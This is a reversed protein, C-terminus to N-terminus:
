EGVDERDARVQGSQRRDADRAAERLVFQRDAELQGSTREVFRRKKADSVGVLAVGRPPLFDRRGNRGMGGKRGTRGIGGMLSGVQAANVSSCSRSTRM